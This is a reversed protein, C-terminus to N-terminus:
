VEGGGSPKPTRVVVANVEEFTRGRYERNQKYGVVHYQEGMKVLQQVREAMARFAVVTFWNTIEEDTDGEPTEHVALPFKAILTGGGTTRVRPDRGARGFLEVRVGKKTEKNTNTTSETGTTAPQPQEWPAIRGSPLEDAAIAEEFEEVPQARLTPSMDRDVEEAKPKPQLFLTVEGSDQFIATRYEHESEDSFILRDTEQYPPQRFTLALSAGESTYQVHGAEPYVELTGQPHDPEGISLRVGEGYFNHLGRSRISALPYALEDMGWPDDLAVHRHDEDFQLLRNEHM